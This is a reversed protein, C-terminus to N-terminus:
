PNGNSFIGYPPGQGVLQRSTLQACHIERSSLWKASLTFDNVSVIGSLRETLWTSGGGIAAGVATLAIIGPLIFTMYGEGSGPTIVGMLSRMGVGFLVVWLVPQILMGFIEESHVLSKKIQKQWLIISASM